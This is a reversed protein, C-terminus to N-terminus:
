LRLQKMLLCVMSATAVMYGDRGIASSVFMLREVCFSGKHPLYVVSVHGIVCAFACAHVPLVCGENKM